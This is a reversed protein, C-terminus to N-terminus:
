NNKKKIIKLFILFVRSSLGVALKSGPRQVSGFVKAPSIPMALEPGDDYLNFVHMARAVMAQDEGRGLDHKHFFNFLYFPGAMGSNALVHGGDGQSILLSRSRRKKEKKAIMVTPRLKSGGGGQSISLNM